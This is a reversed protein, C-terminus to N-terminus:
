AHPQRNVDVRVVVAAQHVDMPSYQIAQEKM